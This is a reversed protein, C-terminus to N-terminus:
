IIIIHHMTFFDIYFWGVLCIISPFSKSTFRALRDIIMLLDLMAEIMLGVNTTNGVLPCDLIDLMLNM